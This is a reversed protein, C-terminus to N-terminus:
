FNFKAGLTIIRKGFKNLQREGKSDLSGAYGFNGITQATPVLKPNASNPNDTAFQLQLNEELLSLLPRNLFNNASIRFLLRKSESIQFSKQMTLDHTNYGPGKLYPFNYAGAQGQPPVGFCSVNAYQGKGLNKRPDCTLTPQASTANTGLAAAVNGPNYITVVDNDAKDKCLAPNSTRAFRCTQELAGQLRFNVSNAQLPYGSAFQSIGSLMWGDLVGSAVKNSTKFLEKAFKPLDVTYAVNFLHTRDYGLIGYSHGRLDLQDAQAGEAGGTRVGLAKSFTYSALYNVRGKQRTLSMQMSNYNQYAIHTRMNVAGFGAFPRFADCNNGLVAAARCGATNLPVLNQDQTFLQDRSRNGVYATELTMSGPLRQQITFSYSDVYPQKDDNPDLVDFSNIIDASKLAETQNAFRGQLESFTTTGTGGTKRFGAAIDLGSTLQADHYYSRGYGGRLVTKGNGFLDYAAGLRPAM